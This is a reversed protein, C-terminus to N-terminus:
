RNEGPIMYSVILWNLSTPLFLFFNAASMKNVKSLHLLEFNSNQVVLNIICLKLYFTEIRFDTVLSIGSSPLPIPHPSWKRGWLNMLLINSRQTFEM